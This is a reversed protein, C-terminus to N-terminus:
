LTFIGAVEERGKNRVFLWNKRPIVFLKLAREGIKNDLRTHLHDIYSQLYPIPEIISSWGVKDSREATSM